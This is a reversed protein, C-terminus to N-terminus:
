REEKQRLAHQYDRLMESDSVRTYQKTSEPSAHGLRKQLTLERMGGEWMQTAHTHRLAHPTIWPDTLGLTQCRRKFHKAFAAYSLPQHRAAGQGGVLFVHPGPADTPREHMIYASLIALTVPEHLDVVRETRSKTRAGRPHDTRHRVTIRRQAYQIDDLHLNLVEGPRLGGQLMLLFMARDRRKSFSTLLLTVQEDSLPRPLRQVSRVRLVRRIPRQGTTLALFPIYRASVRAATPDPRKQIPNESHSVVETLICHEFFTSVAALMRNISAATLPARGKAGRGPLTNLYTLFDVARAPSFHGLTLQTLQLFAYLHKLDHGYALATNPSCGRALLHQLFADVEPVATGDDYLLHISLRGTAMSRTVRM